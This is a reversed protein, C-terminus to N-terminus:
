VRIDCKEAYEKFHDKNKRYRCRQLCFRLRSQTKNIRFGSLPQNLKCMACTLYQNPDNHFNSIHNVCDKAKASQDFVCM